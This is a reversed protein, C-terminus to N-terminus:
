NIFGPCDVKCVRIRGGGRIRENGLIAAELLYLNDMNKGGLVCDFAGHTDSDIKGSIKGGDEVRVWGGPGGFTYYPIAVWVRGKTDMTIGDTPAGLDAFIRRNDLDGNPKIDFISLRYAFTEAVVLKKGDPSIAMGNTFTMRDAVRRVSGDTDVLMISSFTPMNDPAIPINENFSELAVTGVYARGSEDTTMDNILNNEHAGIDAYEKTTKGDFVLVKKDQLSNILLDNNQNWGLGVPLGDIKVVTEKNGEETFCLVENSFIDSFILKNNKWRSGEPFILNEAFIEPKM